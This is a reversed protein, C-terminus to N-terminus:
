PLFRLSVAQKISRGRNESVAVLFKTQATRIARSQKNPMHKLLAPHVLAGPAYHRSGQQRSIISHPPICVLELQVDSPGPSSLRSWSCFEIMSHQLNPLKVTHGFPEKKWIRRLHRSINVAQTPAHQSNRWCCVTLREVSSAYKNAQWTKLSVTAAEQAINVDSSYKGGGGSVTSFTKRSLLM